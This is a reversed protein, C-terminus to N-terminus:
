MKKLQISMLMKRHHIKPFGLVSAALHCRQLFLMACRQTEIFKKAAGHRRGNKKDEGQQSSRLPTGILSFFIGAVRVMFPLICKM